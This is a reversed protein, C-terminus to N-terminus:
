KAWSEHENVKTEGPGGLIELAGQKNSRIKSEGTYKARKHHDNLCSTAWGPCGPFDFYCLQRAQGLVSFVLYRHQEVVCFKVTLPRGSSLYGKPWGSRRIQHSREVTWYYSRQWPILDVRGTSSVYGALPTPWPYWIWFLSKTKRRRPAGMNTHRSSSLSVNGRISSHSFGYFQRLQHFQNIKGSAYLCDTAWSCEVFEVM